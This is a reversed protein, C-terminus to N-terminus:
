PLVCQHECHGCMPQGTYLLTTVTPTTELRADLHDVGRQVLLVTGLRWVGLPGRDPPFRHHSPLLEDLTGLPCELLTIIMMMIM